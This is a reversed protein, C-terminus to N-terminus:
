NNISFNNKKNVENDSNIILTTKSSRPKLPEINMFSDRRGEKNQKNPSNFTNEHINSTERKLEMGGQILPSNHIPNLFEDYMSDKRVASFDSNKRSLRLDTNDYYDGYANYLSYNFNNNLSNNNHNNNNNSPELNLGTSPSHLNNYPYPSSMGSQPLMLNEEQKIINLNSGRDLMPLNKNYSDHRLNTSFPVNINSVEWIKEKFLEKSKDIIHNFCDNANKSFPNGPNTQPETKKMFFELIFM